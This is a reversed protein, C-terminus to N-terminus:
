RGRGRATSTRATRRRGGPAAQEAGLGARGVDRLRHALPQGAGAMRDVAQVLHAGRRDRRDHARRCKQSARRAPARLPRAAPCLVTDRCQQHSSSPRRAPSRSRRRPVRCPPWRRRTRRRGPACSRGRAPGSPGRRAAPSRPSPRCAPRRRRACPPARRRDRTRSGTPRRGARARRACGSRRQAVRKEARRVLLREHPATDWSGFSNRASERAPTGDRSRPRTSLRWCSATTARSTSKEIQFCPGAGSGHAHSSRPLAARRSNM